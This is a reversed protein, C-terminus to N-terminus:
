GKEIAETHGRLSPKILNKRCHRCLVAIGRVQSVSAVDAPIGVPYFLDRRIFLLVDLLRGIHEVLNLPRHVIVMAVAKSTNPKISM